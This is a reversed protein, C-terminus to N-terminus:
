RRALDVHWVVLFGAGLVVGTIITRDLRHHPLVEVVLQEDVKVFSRGVVHKSLGGCVAVASRPGAMIRMRVVAASDNMIASRKTDVVACACSSYGPGIEPM